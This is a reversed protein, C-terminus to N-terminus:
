NTKSLNQRCEQAFGVTESIWEAGVPDYPVNAFGVRCDNDRVQGKRPSKELAHELESGEVRSRRCVGRRSNSRSESGCVSVQGAHCASRPCLFAHVVQVEARRLTLLSDVADWELDVLLVLYVNRRFLHVCLTPHACWGFAHGRGGMDVM